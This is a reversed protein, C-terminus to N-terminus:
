EGDPSDVVLNVTQGLREALIDALNATVEADILPAPLTGQPVDVKFELAPKMFLSNPLTLSLKIAIENSATDPKSKLFKLGVAKFYNESEEHYINSNREAGVVLYCEVKM